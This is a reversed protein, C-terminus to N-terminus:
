PQTMVTHKHQAAKIHKHPRLKMISGAMLNIMHSRIAEVSIRSYLM